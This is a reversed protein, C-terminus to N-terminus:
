DANCSSAHGQSQAPLTGIAFLMDSCVKGVELERTLCLQSSTAGSLWYQNRGKPLSYRTQFLCASHAEALALSPHRRALSHPLSTSPLTQEQHSLERHKQLLRVLLGLDLFSFKGCGIHKNLLEWGTPLDGLSLGENDRGGPLTTVCSQVQQLAARSTMSLKSANTWSPM